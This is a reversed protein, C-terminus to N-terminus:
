GGRNGIGHPQEPIRYAVNPLHHNVVMVPFCHLFITIKSSKIGM